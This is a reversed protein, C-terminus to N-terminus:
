KKKKIAAKPPARRGRERKPEENSALEDLYEQYDEELSPYSDVPNM